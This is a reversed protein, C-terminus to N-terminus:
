VTASLLPPTDFSALIVTVTLLTGGIASSSENPLMLGPSVTVRSKNVPSVSGSPSSLRRFTLDMLPVSRVPPSCVMVTGLPVTLM